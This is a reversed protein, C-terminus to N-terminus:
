DVWDLERSVSGGSTNDVNDRQDLFVRCFQSREETGDEVVGKSSEGTVM